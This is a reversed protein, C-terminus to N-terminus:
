FEVKIIVDIQKIKESYLPKKASVNIKNLKNKKDKLYEIFIKDRKKLNIPGYEIELDTLQRSKSSNFVVIEYFFDDKVITEDIITYNNDSIWKRLKPVHNNVQVVIKDYNSLDKGDLIHKVTFYGMGCITIINVDEEIKEIGDALIPIVKGELEYKKINAKAKNLPGIKNDSAYAKKAIKKMVLFCPLLGHDSGVDYVVKNTEIFKTVETLRKSLM